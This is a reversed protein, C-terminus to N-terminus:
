AAGALTAVLGLHDTGAVRVTHIETATLRQNVLVHDIPFLPPYARNAPYTPMWGAGALDAASRLGDARLDQLPGHDDIANFDGAVVLREALYPRIARRLAAHESAWRNGGCYPNCPHVAVLRVNGVGPAQVTTIWQQFSTPGIVIGGSLPFRSYITTNSQETEPGGVAYPFRERWPPTALARLIKPTTEVLVVLDVRAAQDRIQDPDAAGNYVNLTLVTLTARSAPRDDPVFLPGLWSLHLVTLSAVGVSLIALFWRRRARLLAVLLVLLALLYGIIGYPIFSALLATADDSPPAVRLVTTVAAPLILVVAVAVLRGPYRRPPPTDWAQTAPSV